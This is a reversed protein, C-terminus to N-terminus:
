TADESWFSADDLDDLAHIVEHCELCTTTGDEFDERFDAHLESEEFSRAGEHCHLCERNSYPENLEIRDPITGLYYVYVHKLGKLKASVDGFMTYTTHCTYCAYDRDIRRNQFHNAPLAEVDDLHLSRGYPEM